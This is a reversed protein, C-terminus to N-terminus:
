PEYNILNNSERRNKLFQNSKKSIKGAKGIKSDTENSILYVRCEAAKYVVIIVCMRELVDSVSWHRLSRNTTASSFNLKPVIHTTM